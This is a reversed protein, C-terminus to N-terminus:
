ECPWVRRALPPFSCVALRGYYKVARRDYRIAEAFSRRAEGYRGLRLLHMGRIAVHNALSPPHQALRPRYHDLIYEAGELRSQAFSPTRRRRGERDNRIGVLPEDVTAIRGGTRDLHDVLRLGLEYNESARLGDVYGGLALFVSRRVAFTGPPWFLAKRNLFLPGLDHPLEVRSRRGDAGLYDAGCCIVECRDDSAPVALRELWQPRAVDDDDLFALFAGGAARAGRNRAASCGANAQALYALRRDDFSAVVGATGDTSGDDVVVCELDRFSQRLVSTVADALTAARNHTAIVVTFVPSAM